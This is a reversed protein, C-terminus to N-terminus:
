SYVEPEGAQSIYPSIPVHLSIAGRRHRRVKLRSTRVCMLMGMGMGMHMGMGMGMGMCM